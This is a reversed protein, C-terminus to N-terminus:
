AKLATTGQSFLEFKAKSHNCSVRGIKTHTRKSGLHYAVGVKSRLVERTKETTLSSKSFYSSNEQLWLLVM